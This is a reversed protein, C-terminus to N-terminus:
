RAPQTLGFFTVDGLGLEYLKTPNRQFEWQFVACQEKLTGFNQIDRKAEQVKTDNQSVNMDKMFAAMLNRAQEERDYFERYLKRAYPLLEEGTYIYTWGTRQASVSDNFMGM